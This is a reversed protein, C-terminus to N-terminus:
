GDGRQRTVPAVFRVGRSKEAQERALKPDGAELAARALLLASEANNQKM